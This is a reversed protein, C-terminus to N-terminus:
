EDAADSTYLLCIYIDGKSNVSVGLPNGLHANNAPGGDGGYARAGSGAVTSILSTKM